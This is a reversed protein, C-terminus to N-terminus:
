RQRRNLWAVLGGIEQHKDIRGLPLKPKLYDIPDATM